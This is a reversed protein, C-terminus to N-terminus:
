NLEYTSDKIRGTGRIHPRVFVVKGSKCHRYHGRVGWAECHRDYSRPNEYEWIYSIGDAIKIPRQTQTSAHNAGLEQISHRRKGIKIVTKYKKVIERNILFWLTAIAMAERKWHTVTKDAGNKHVILGAEYFKRSLETGGCLIADCEDNHTLPSKVCIASQTGYDGMDIDDLWLEVSEGDPAILRFDKLGYNKLLLSTEYPTIPNATAKKMGKHDIKVVNM